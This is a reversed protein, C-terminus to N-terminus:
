QLSHALESANFRLMVDVIITKTLDRGLYSLDKVFSGNENVCAERFLRGSGVGYRDVVDM